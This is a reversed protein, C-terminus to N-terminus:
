KLEFRTYGGIYAEWEDGLNNRICDYLNRIPLIGQRGRSIDNLFTVFFVVNLGFSGRRRAIMKTIICQKKEINCLQACEKISEQMKPHHKLVYPLIKDMYRSINALEEKKDYKKYHTMIYLVTQDPYARLTGVLPINYLCTYSELMKKDLRPKRRAVYEKINLENLKSALRNTIEVRKTFNHPDAISSSRTPSLDDLFNQSTDIMSKISEDLYPIDKVHSQNKTVIHYKEGKKPSTHNPFKDKVDFVTDLFGPLLSHDISKKFLLFDPKTLSYLRSKEGQHCRGCFAEQLAMNQRLKVLFEHVDFMHQNPDQTQNRISSVAPMLGFYSDIIGLEDLPEVYASHSLNVSM